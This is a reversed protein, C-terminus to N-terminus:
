GPCRRRTPRDQAPDHERRRDQERSPGAKDAATGCAASAADCPVPLWISNLLRALDDDATRESEHRAMELTGEGARKMLTHLLGRFDAFVREMFVQLKRREAATLTALRVHAADLNSRLVMAKVFVGEIVDAKAPPRFL